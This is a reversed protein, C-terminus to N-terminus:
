KASSDYLFAHGLILFKRSKPKKMIKQFDIQESIYSNKMFKPYIHSNEVIECCILKSFIMFFEFNQFIRIKPWANKYSLEAFYFEGFDSPVHERMIKCVKKKVHGFYSIKDFDMM